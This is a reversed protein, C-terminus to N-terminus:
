RFIIRFGVGKVQIAGAGSIHAPLNAATYIGSLRKDGVWGEAFKQTKGSPIDIKGSDAFRIVAHQPNFTNASTLKLTGTGTVNVNTGNLWSAGDTFTLTGNSVTIDGSSAFARTKLRQWGSGSMEISVHGTIASPLNTNATAAESAVGQTIELCGDGEITGTNNSGYIFRWRQHTGNLRMASSNGGILAITDDFADDVHFEAVCAYNLRYVMAARNGTAKFVHKASSGNVERDKRVQVLPGEFVYTANNANFGAGSTLADRYGKEFVVTASLGEGGLATSPTQKVVEKFVNTTNAAAIFFTTVGTSGSMQGKGQLAVPKWCTVGELRTMGSECWGDNINSDNRYNGYYITLPEVDGPNGVQGKLILTGGGTTHTIPGSVRPNVLKLVGNTSYDYKLSSLKTGKLEIGYTPDADIGGSFVVEAGDTPMTITQNAHLVVPASIEYRPMTGLGPDTVGVTGFLQITDNGSLTFASVGGFGLGLFNRDAGSDLVATATSATPSAFIPRFTATSFDPAVDWNGAVSASTSTAGTWTVDTATTSPSLLVRVSGHALWANDAAAYVGPALYAGNVSLGKVVLTRSDSGLDIVAESGLIAELGSMSISAEEGAFSLSGRVEVPGYLRAGAAVAINTFASRTGSFFVNGANAAFSEASSERVTLNGNGVKEVDVNATCRANFTGNVDQAGLVLTGRASATNTVVGVYYGTGTSTVSNLHQSKGYLDLCCHHQNQASNGEAHSSFGSYEVVLGGVGPGYPLVDDSETRLWMNGTLHIDGTIEWVINDQRMLRWPRFNWGGLWQPVAGENHLRVDTGRMRVTGGLQGSMKVEAFQKRLYIPNGNVGQCIIEHGTEPSLSAGHDCVNNRFLVGGNFLIRAPYPSNNRICALDAFAGSKIELFDIMGPANTAVSSEIFLWEAWFTGYVNSGFGANDKVLDELVLKVRGTSGPEGGANGLHVRVRSPAASRNGAPDIGLATWKAPSDSNRYTTAFMSYGKVNITVDNANTAIYFQPNTDTPETATGTRNAGMFRIYSHGQLTFDALISGTNVPASYINTVGSWVTPSTIVLAENTVIAGYGAVALIALGMCVIRKKM